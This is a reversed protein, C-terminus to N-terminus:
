ISTHFYFILYILRYIRRYFIVYNSYFVNQKFTDIINYTYFKFNLIKNDIQTTIVPLNVQINTYIYIIILM